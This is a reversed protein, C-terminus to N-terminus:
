KGTLRQNWVSLLIATATAVNLSDIKSSTNPRPITVKSKNDGEYRVGHSESGMVLISNSQWDVAHCNEGNMEATFVITSDQLFELSVYKPQIRALSGMSGQVVKANYCDVTDLSCVLQPIGYWDCLRIITGLNGPDAVGDLVLTKLTFDVSNILPQKFVALTGPPSSMDSMQKMDKTSVMEAEPFSPDHNVNFLHIPRYGEDLFDAVVKAGEAKFLSLEQRNRKRSLSRIM